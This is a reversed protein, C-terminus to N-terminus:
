ELDIKRSLAVLTKHKNEEIKQLDGQVKKIIFLNYISIYTKKRDRVIKRELQLAALENDFQSIKDQNAHHKLEINPM